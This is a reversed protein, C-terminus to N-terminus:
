RAFYILVQVRSLARRAPRLAALFGDGLYGAMAVQMPHRLVIMMAGRRRPASSTSLLPGPEPLLNEIMGTLAGDGGAAPYPKAVDRQPNWTLLEDMAIWMQGRDLRPLGPTEKVM